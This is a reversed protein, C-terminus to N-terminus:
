TITGPRPPPNDNNAVLPIAAGESGRTTARHTQDAISKAIEFIKPKPIAHEELLTVLWGMTRLVKPTTGSSSQELLALWYGLGIVRLAQAEKEQLPDSTFKPPNPILLHM